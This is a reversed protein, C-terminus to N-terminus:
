ASRLIQKLKSRIELISYFMVLFSMCTMSFYIFAMNIKM